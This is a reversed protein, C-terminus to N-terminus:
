VSSGNSSVRTAETSLTINTLDGTALFKGEGEVSGLIGTELRNDRLTRSSRSSKFKKTFTKLAAVQAPKLRHHKYFAPLTPLSACITGVNLEVM